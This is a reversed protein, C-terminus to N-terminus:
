FLAPEIEIYGVKDFIAMKFITIDHGFEFTLVIDFRITEFEM